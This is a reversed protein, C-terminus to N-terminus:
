PIKVGKIGERARKRALEVPLSACFNRPSKLLNELREGFQGNLIEYLSIIAQKPLGIEEALARCKPHYDIVLMPLKNLYAFLCSHYRMGIFVSCQGVFALMKRPDPNYPILKVCEPPQLQQHLLRTIGGDHDKTEGKFVFLYVRWQPNRKIQENIAKAIESVLLYDREPSNYYIEFIPTVSIGLIAKDDEQLNNTTKDLPEILASLDFALSVKDTFGWSTLLRYSARDRVSIHDALRCILRVLLRGWTTSVPGIGNNLLYVKKRLVKSFLVLILIRLQIKLTRIKNGYDFLHTGGGIVFASSKLIELCILIPSHKVFRTKGEAQPPIEVPVASLVSFEADPALTHLEQLLAYLMADDGVNKWGYYGFIFIKPAKLKDVMSSKKCRKKLNM